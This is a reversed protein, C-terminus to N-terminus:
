GRSTVDARLPENDWGDDAAFPRKDEGQMLRETEQLASRAAAFYVKRDQGWVAELRKAAAEDHRRFAQTLREAQYARHGLTRLAATGAM